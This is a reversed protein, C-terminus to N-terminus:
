WLGINQSPRGITIFINLQSQNLTTLKLIITSVRVIWQRKFYVFFHVFAIKNISFAREQLLCFTSMIHVNPLLPLCLIQQFIVSAEPNSRLFVLFGNIQSAYRRVAQCFHFWCTIIPAEPCIRNLANRLSIEYDSTFKTCTLNIINENIFKFVDFYAEETKRSMLIYIFPFAQIYFFTM